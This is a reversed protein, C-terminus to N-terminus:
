VLATVGAAVGLVGGDAAPRGRAVGGNADGAIERAWGLGAVADLCPDGGTAGAFHEVGDGLRLCGDWGVDLAHFHFGAVSQVENDGAAGVIIGVGELPSGHYAAVANLPVGLGLEWFGEWGGEGWPFLERLDQERR